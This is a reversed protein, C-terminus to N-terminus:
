DLCRAETDKPPVPEGSEAYVALSVIMAEKLDAITEEFTAGQAVARLTPCRAIFAAETGPRVSIMYGNLLYLEQRAVSTFVEEVQDELEAVLKRLDAIEATDKSSPAQLM